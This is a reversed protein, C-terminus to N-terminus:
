KSSSERCNLGRTRGGRRDTHPIRLDPASKQHAHRHTHTLSHTHTHAHTHARARPTHKLSKDPRLASLRGLPFFSAACSGPRPSRRGAPARRDARESAAPPPQPREEKLFCRELQSCRCGRQPPKGHGSSNPHWPPQNAGVSGSNGGRGQSSSATAAAAAAAASPVAPEGRRPPADFRGRRAGARM